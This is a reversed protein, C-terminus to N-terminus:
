AQRRYLDRLLAVEAGHHALEDLAHLALAAWTDDAYPGWDPGLKTRIGEEGLATVRERFTAYATDLAALAPEVQGYWECGRVPLPWDGLAPSVYTALCDSGIHWLRWAITTVPPPDPEARTREATWTSGDPRVTWVDGVPQWLYEDDTLGDLRTRLRDWVYDLGGFLLPLTENAM